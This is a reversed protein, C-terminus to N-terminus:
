ENKPEPSELSVGAAAAVKELQRQTKKIAQRMEPLYQIMSYARRGRHVEIAPAGAVTLGDEIHNIVGAQAAVTVNNGVTIHGVVGVQGGLICHHGLTASGAIGVQAVLLCHPGVKTGHGITVQDGIKTGECIVTDGLTGREISCCTGLEVDDELVVVGIQPIKHHKGEHSAYGFGDEGVATNANIIVRNGIKCGDYIVANPYIICDDGISVDEGVFVGSYIKCNNGIRADDSIVAFDYIDCDNGIRASDAVSARKSIGIKKHQRHGHLLVVIQMFAYYPDQSIIQPIPADCPKKVIVASAKTALLQKEYKENALFSIQGDVARALTSASQIIIDGNGVVTGGVHQALESLKKSQM